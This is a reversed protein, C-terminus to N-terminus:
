PGLPADPELIQLEAQSAIIEIDDGSQMRVIFRSADGHPKEEVRLVHSSPGRDDNRTMTISRLGGFVLDAVIPPWGYRVRIHASKEQWRIDINSLTADHFTPLPSM